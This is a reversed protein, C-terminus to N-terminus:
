KEKGGPGHKGANELEGSMVSKSLRHDSMRFLTGSWLLRRTHWTMEISECATRELAGKYSLTHHNPSKVLSRPNSAVDQSANYPAQQLPGYPPDMNRMRTPSGRNGQIEGDPDEPAASKGKSPQIAGVHLM